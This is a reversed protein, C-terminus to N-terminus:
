SSPLYVIIIIGDHCDSICYRDHAPQGPDGSRTWGVVRRARGWPSRAVRRDPRSRAWSLPISHRQRADHRANVEGEMSTDGMQNCVSESQNMSNCHHTSLQPPIENTVFCLMMIISPLNISLCISTVPNSIYANNTDRNWQLSLTIAACEISIITRLLLVKNTLLHHNIFM